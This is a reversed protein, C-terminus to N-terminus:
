SMLRPSWLFVLPVAASSLFAVPTATLPLLCPDWTLTHSPLSNQFLKAWWAPVGVAPQEFHNAGVLIRVKSGKGKRCYSPVCPSSFLLFLDRAASVWNTSPLPFLLQSSLAERFVPVGTKRVLSPWWRCRPRPCVFYISLWVHCRTLKLRVDGWATALSATAMVDGAFLNAM